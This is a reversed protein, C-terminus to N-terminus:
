CWAQCIILMVYTPLIIKGKSIEISNLGRWHSSGPRRLQFQNEMGVEWPISKKEQKRLKGLILIFQTGGVSSPTHRRPQIQAKSVQSNRVWVLVSLLTGQGNPHALGCEQGQCQCKRMFYLEQGWSAQWRNCSSLALVCLSNSLLSFEMSVQVTLFHERSSSSSKSPRSPSIEFCIFM